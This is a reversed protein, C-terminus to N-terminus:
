TGGRAFGTLVYIYTSTYLPCHSDCKCAPVHHPHSTSLSSIEVFYRSLQYGQNVNKEKRNKSDWTGKLKKGGKSLL